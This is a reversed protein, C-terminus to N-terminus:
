SLLTIIYCHCELAVINELITSGEDFYGEAIDQEVDIALYYHVILVDQNETMTITAPPIENYYIHVTIPNSSDIEPETTTGTKYWKQDAIQEDAQWDFDNDSEQGSLDIRNVIVDGDMGDVRTIIIENVLVRNVTAHAYVRQEVTAMPCSQIESVIGQRMDLRFISSGEGPCADWRSSLISKIRARHSEGHYGNYVGNVYISDHWVFTGLHGNGM